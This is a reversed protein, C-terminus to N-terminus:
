KSDQFDLESDERQSQILISEWAWWSETITEFAVYSQCSSIGKPSLILDDRM